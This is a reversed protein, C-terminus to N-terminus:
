DDVRGVLEDAVGLGLDLSQCVADGVCVGVVEFGLVLVTGEEGVRQVEYKEM